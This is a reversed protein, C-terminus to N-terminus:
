IKIIDAVVRNVTKVNNIFANRSIEVKLELTDILTSFLAYVIKEYVKDISRKLGAEAWFM